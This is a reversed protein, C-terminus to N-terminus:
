IIKILINKYFKLCKTILSNDNIDIGKLLQLKQSPSLCKETKTKKEQVTYNVYDWLPNNTMIRIIRRFIGL